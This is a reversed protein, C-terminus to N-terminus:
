VQACTCACVYRRRGRAFTETMKMVQEVTIAQCSADHIPILCIGAQASSVPVTCSVGFLVVFASCVPHSSSSDAQERQPSIDVAAPGSALALALARHVYVLGLQSSNFKGAAAACSCCIPIRTTQSDRDSLSYTQTSEVDRLHNSSAITAM